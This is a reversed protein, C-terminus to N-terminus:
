TILFCFGLAQARSCVEAVVDQMWVWAEIGLACGSSAELMGREQPCARKQIYEMSQPDPWTLGVRCPSPFQCLGPVLGYAQPGSLSGGHAGKELSVATIGSKQVSQEIAQCGSPKPPTWSAGLFSESTSTEPLPTWSLCGLGLPLSAAVSLCTLRIKFRFFVTSKLLEWRVAITFRSSCWSSRPLSLYHPINQVECFWYYILKM